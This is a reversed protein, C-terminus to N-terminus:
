SDRSYAMGSAGSEGERLKEVFERSESLKFELSVLPEDPDSEPVLGGEYGAAAYLGGITRQSLSVVM